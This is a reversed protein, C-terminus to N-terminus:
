KGGNDGTMLSIDFPKEKGSEVAFDAHRIYGENTNEFGDNRTNIEAIEELPLIIIDKDM